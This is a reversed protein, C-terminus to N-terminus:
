KMTRRLWEAFFIDTIRCNEILGKSELLKLSRQVHAVTKLQYKTIFDVSYVNPGLERSLGLLLNRQTRSRLGDWIREYEVGYHRLVIEVARRVMSPDGVDKSLNWLEHCLQQTFYPHGETFELIEDIVGGAVSGGTAEFRHAIFRAFENKPINGLEMPRAFKFLPRGEDAFIQHLLHRKSGAFIYVANRHGEFKAKMLKEIEIGDFLGIEQFEDFAIVVRKGRRGGVQEPFDLVEEMGRATVRRSIELRIEGEPTLVIDPRLEKLSMIAERVRELRTYAGRVVSEAMREAFAQRSGIGYLNMYVPIVRGKLRRFFEKLLSTKGLRRPSYLVVSKRSIIEGELDALEQMRDVFDEGTVEVGYKFPNEM